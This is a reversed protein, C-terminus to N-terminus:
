CCYQLLNLASKGSASYLINKCNEETLSWKVRCRNSCPLCLRDCFCRLRVRTQVHAPSVKIELFQLWRGRWRMLKHWSYSFHLLCNVGKSGATMFSFISQRRNVWLDGLSVGWHPSDPDERRHSASVVRRHYSHHNYAITFVKKPLIFISMMCHRGESIQRLARM